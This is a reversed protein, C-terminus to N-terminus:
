SWDYDKVFQDQTLLGSKVFRDCAQKAEGPLNKYSQAGGAAPRSSGRSNGEVPNTRGKKGLKDPFVEQLEENLADFFAQGRLHPSKITLEKGIEDAMVTMRRDVGFWTNESMWDVVIPDLAQSPTEPEEKPPEKIDEQAQKKEAKLTDIRDEIDLVAEGDGNTIAEKKSQKLADLQSEVEQVRREALGKQFKEFEKATKKVEAIELNAQDLKKLLIENNKRLIPNIEKGRKVFAEADVWSDGDRFDEKPVWGLLRAEKEVATPAVAETSVSVQEESM